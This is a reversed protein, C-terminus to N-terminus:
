DKFLGPGM